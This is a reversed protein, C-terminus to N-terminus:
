KELILECNGNAIYVDLGAISVEKYRSDGLIRIISKIPGEIEVDYFVGSHKFKADFTKCNEGECRMVTEKKKDLFTVNEITRKPCEKKTCIFGTKPYCKLKHWNKAAKLYKEAEAFTRELDLQEIKRLEEAKLEINKQSISETVETKDVNLKINNERSWSQSSFFLSITTLLILSKIKM